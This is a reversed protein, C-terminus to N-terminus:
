KREKTIREAESITNATLLTDLMCYCRRAYKISDGTKVTKQPKIAPGLSFVFHDVAKDIDKMAPIETHLNRTITYNEVHHISQLQGDYRFALYNPAVKPWSNGVPCYYKHEKNVIDIYSMTDCDESHDHSLSVVYVMNSTQIQESMIVKFYAILESLDNKEKVSSTEKQAENAIVFIQSWSLHKVTIGNIDKELYLKAYDNSCESMSVLLKCKAKSTKFDKRESYLELQKKTPLNWGKKAEIIIYFDSSNSKDSEDKIELDTRGKEKESEQFKISIENSFLATGLIESLLKTRFTDSKYLSWALCKTIDDENTGILQFLSSIEEGYSSLLVM